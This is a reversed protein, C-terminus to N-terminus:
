WGSPTKPKKIENVTRPRTGTQQEIYNIMDQLQQLQNMAEFYKSKEADYDKIVSSIGLSPTRFKKDQDISEPREMYGSLGRGVQGTLQEMAYAPKMPIGFNIDTYPVQYQKEQGEFNQIPKNYFFNRNLSLEPILKIMPSTSDIIMKGPSGVKMTDALPLNMSLFKGNGKQDGTVAFAFQEKMWQPVNKEDIGVASQSNLRTKNINGYKRPDNIFSKIQYPLNNRVWRYFPFVRTMIEREFNTTNTYDFQTERVKAAAQEPTMGKNRAWKYVSFRNTQDIFNGFDKSTEFVNLPNKLQKVEAKVRGTLTGDFTSRKQITREIAKEADEGYRAFEINSLAESGLGQQRYENFLPTERGKVIANYVDRDASASYRVLDPISMGGVWNNFKAGIDNRLHYPLSFLAGRKWASQLRDYARIFGKIGEDTTLKKYRDLAEKTGKTVIYDGGIEDALGLSEAAPDSIFKYNNTNILVSDKPLIDGKNYKVAFEPNSLVERRFKVANGYEILRKQGIGTSFYANPEFFKRGVTENVDEASGTLKRSNLIKKNPNGTGFNGRDVPTSPIGKGKRLKREEASLVHTMYGELEKIDIGSDQAWQRILNNSETLRQAAQQINPDTSLQRTPRLIEQKDKIPNALTNRIENITNKLSSIEENTATYKGNKIDNLLGQNGEIIYELEPKTFKKGDFNYVDVENFQKLPAEMIRGVETGADVGTTKAIDAVNKLAEESQYKINNQTANFANKMTDDTGGYLTRNWGYQPVFMKGLVEKGAILGPTVKELANVGKSIGSGALKAGKAFVAGPILNVPDAAIEIGTGLLFKGVPNNVGMREAFETGRTKKNGTFGALAASGIDQGRTAADIGGLVAQGPRGILELTDFLFNQNQPLNTAKEFWNRKDLQVPYGSDKIRTSANDIQRLVAPTDYKSQAAADKKKPTGTLAENWVSKRTSTAGTLAKNWDDARALNDGM